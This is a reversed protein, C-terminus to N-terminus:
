FGIEEEVVAVAEDPTLYATDIEVHPEEWPVYHRTRVDQWTPMVLGGIDPVRQEVRRRHKQLDSCIVEVEILRTGARTAVARWGLRSEPVPNVCDAVVDRGNALNSEALANAVVYGAPGVDAALVNASRLAQEIVDIRLYVAQMRVALVRAITTKGTGPLGGFVILM